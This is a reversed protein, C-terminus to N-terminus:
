LGRTQQLIATFGGSARRSLTLRAETQRQFCANAAFPRLPCARRAVQERSLTELEPMRILLALATREGIGPVGILLDFRKALDPHARLINVLRKVERARRKNLRSIEAEAGAKFEATKFGERRTKGRAIDEEIQAIFTLHEALADFRADERVVAAGAQEMPASGPTGGAITLRDAEAMESNSLLAQTLSDPM